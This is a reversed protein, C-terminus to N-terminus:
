EDEEKCSEHEDMDSVGVVFCVGGAILLCAVFAGTVSQCLSILTDM